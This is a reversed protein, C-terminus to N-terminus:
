YCIIIGFSLCCLSHFILFSSSYLLVQSQNIHTEAPDLVAYVYRAQSGNSETEVFKPYPFRSKMLVKADELPAQVHSYYGFSFLHYSINL